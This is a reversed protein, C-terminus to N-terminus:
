KNDEQSKTVKQRFVNPKLLLLFYKKKEAELALNKTESIFEISQRLSKKQRDFAEIDDRILKRKISSKFDAWM